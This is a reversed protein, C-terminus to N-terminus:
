IAADDLLAAPQMWGLVLAVDIQRLQLWDDLAERKCGLPINGVHLEHGIRLRNCPPQLLDRVVYMAQLSLAQMVHQHLAAQLEHIIKDHCSAHRYLDLPDTGTLVLSIFQRASGEVPHFSELGAIISIDSTDTALTDNTRNVNRELLEGTGLLLMRTVIEDVVGALLRVLWIIWHLEQAGVMALLVRRWM